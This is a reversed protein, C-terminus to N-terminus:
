SGLNHVASVAAAEAALAAKAQEVYNVGQPVKVQFTTGNTLQATILYGPVYTNAANPVPQPTQSIVTYPIPAGTTAPVDSM